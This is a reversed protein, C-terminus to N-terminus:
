VGPLCQRQWFRQAALGDVGGVRGELFLRKATDFYPLQGVQYHKTVVWQGKRWCPELLQWYVDGNGAALHHMGASDTGRGTPGGSTRNGGTATTM